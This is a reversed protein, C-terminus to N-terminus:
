MKQSSRLDRQEQPCFIPLGRFKSGGIFELEGVDLLV